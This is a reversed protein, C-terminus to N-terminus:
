MQIVEKWGNAVQPNRHVTKMVAHLISRTKEFEEFVEVSLDNANFFLGGWPEQIITKGGSAVVAELYSTGHSQEMALVLLSPALCVLNKADAPTIKASTDIHRLQPMDKLVRKVGAITVKRQYLLNLQALNPCTRAIVKCSKDTLYGGDSDRGSLMLIRLNSLSPLMVAVDADRLFHGNVNLQVLHKCQRLSGVIIKCDNRTWEKECKGLVMQALTLSLISNQQHKMVSCFDRSTAFIPYIMKLVRLNRLEGWVRGDMTSEKSCDLCFDAHTWSLTELKGQKSTLFTQLIDPSLRVNKEHDANDIKLEFHKINPMHKTSYDLVSNFDETKDSDLRIQEVENSKRRCFRRHSDWDSRQCDKSCYYVQKCGTCVNLKDESTDIAGCWTCQKSPKSKCCGRQCGKQNTWPPQFDTMIM